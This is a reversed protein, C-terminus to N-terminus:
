ARYLRRRVMGALGVLGSGMLALSGPEPVPNPADGEFIAGSNATAIWDPSGASGENLFGVIYSGQPLPNINLRPSLSPNSPGQLTTPGFVAQFVSFGTAGPDLAQTSPLFAGIPNTPSASIGLYADLNGSTWPTASFLSATGASTGTITYASLSPLNNPTLVDILFSTGSAPGPSVTFGFNSPPNITTPSNTGNDVCQGAGDCYGHLPDLITDAHSAQPFVIMAAFTLLGAVALSLGRRDVLWRMPANM